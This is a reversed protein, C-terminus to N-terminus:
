WSLQRTGHSVQMGFSVLIMEIFLAVNFLFSDVLFSILWSDAVAGDPLSRKLAIYNSMVVLIAVIGLTVRAPTAAPDILLGMMSVFVFVVAMIFFDTIAAAGRRTYHLTARVSTYNLAHVGDGYVTAQTYQDLATIIFESLCGAKTHWGDIAPRGPKWQLQVQSDDADYLGWVVECEQTDFPLNTLNVACHLKMSGQLSAYVLGDPYVYMFQSKASGHWQSLDPFEVEISKEWYFNPRWVKRMEDRSLTISDACGGDATGNFHLRPDYWWTRIYGDLSFTQAATDPASFRDVYIQGHVVDATPVHCQANDADPLAALGPRTGPNGYSGLLQAKLVDITRPNSVSESNVFLLAALVLSLQAKEAPVRPAM